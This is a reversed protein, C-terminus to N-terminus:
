YFQRLFRVKNFLQYILILIFLLILLVLVLIIKNNIIELSLRITTFKLNKYLYLDPLLM